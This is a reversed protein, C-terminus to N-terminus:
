QTPKDKTDSTRTLDQEQPKESLNITGPVTPKPAQVKEPESDQTKESEIAPKAAESSPPTNTPAAASKDPQVAPEAPQSKEITVPRAELEKSTHSRQLYGVLFMAAVLVVCGIVLRRPTVGGSGTHTARREIPRERRMAGAQTASRRGAIVPREQEKEELLQDLRQLLADPNPYRKDRDKQMLREILDSTEESVRPNVKCAVPPPTILRARMIEASNKGKFPPVGTVMHYMTAGLAYLDSRIDICDLQGKAQEPAMYHPTGVAKGAQKQGVAATKSDLAALDPDTEDEDDTVRRALGLDALKVEGHVTLLINDPKIDRHVIGERHACSLAVTVGRAIKLAKREPLAGDEKLVTRVTPGDIYEMAFYYLGSEQDCGVEIGQVINPHNLKASVRAERIFCDVFVPDKRAIKSPLIKIAVTRDLSIQRAKYVAGMGGQGIKEGLEFGAITKTTKEETIM